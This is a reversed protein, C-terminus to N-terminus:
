RTTPARGFSTHTIRLYVFLPREFVNIKRSPTPFNENSGKIIKSISKNKFSQFYRNQNLINKFSQVSNNSIIGSDDKHSGHFKICICTEFGKSHKEADVNKVNNIRTWFDWVKVFWSKVEKVTVIWKWGSHWFIWCIWEAQLTLVFCWFLFCRSCAPKKEKPKAM